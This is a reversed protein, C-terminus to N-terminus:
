SPAASADPRVPLLKPGRLAGALVTTADLSGDARSLGQASIYMGVTVDSLKGAAAGNVRYTTSADVHITITTNNRGQITISSGTVATVKGIRLDPAIHVVDAAFSSGDTGEVTVRAGVSLDSKSSKADGLLFSTSSSTTVTKSSGDRLKITFGTSTVETVTGGVTPVRVLIMTVAFTGDANKKQALSITDGVKLDSLKGTQSGVRIQTTDTVSITRTWGDVTKLSVAAGDVKTITIAGGFGGVRQGIIPGGVISPGGKGGFGFWLGPGGPGFRGKDGGPGASAAPAVSPDSAPSPSAGITVAASAVLVVLCGIVIGIRLVEGSQLRTRTSYTVPAPSPTPEDGPSWQDTM